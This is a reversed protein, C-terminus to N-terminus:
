SVSCKIVKFCAPQVVQGGLRARGLFLVQNLEAYNSDDFRKVSFDVRKAITYGRRFDGFIIPFAGSAIDPAQENVIIPDGLLTDPITIGRLGENREGMLYNGNGDKLKHLERLTNSNMVWKANGRYQAPLHYKTEIIVDANIFGGTSGTPLYGGVTQVGVSASGSVLTNTTVGELKGNGDGYYIFQDYDIGVAESFAENIEAEIDFSVDELSNMSVPNSVMCVHIPIAIQSLTDEAATHDGAAPTEGVWRTRAVHARRADTTVLNPQVLLDSSTTRARCEGAMVTAAAINKNLEGIWEEPVGYGFSADSGSTITKISWGDMSREAKVSAGEMFRQKSNLVYRQSETLRSEGHRAYAEFVSKYAGKVDAEDKIALAKFARQGPAEMEELAKIKKDQSALRKQYKMELAKLAANVRPNASKRASRQQIPNLSFNGSDEDYFLTVGKQKAKKRRSRSSIPADEFEDAAMTAVDEEDLGMYSDFEDDAMTAEFEDDAKRRRSRSSIPANDFEDDAMTASDEDDGFAMGAFDEDDGFAMMSSDLEDDAMMAPDADIEAAVAGLEEDDLKLGLTKAVARAAAIARKSAMKVGRSYHDDNIREDLGRWFQEDTFLAKLARVTTKSPQAPTPTVSGEILPWVKIEGSKAIKVLHDVSGSSWGFEKAQVMKYVADGYEDRLNLQAQVWLGINDAKAMKITGIAKLGTSDDMGHHYLVPREAFWDLCFDTDPTFWEGQLDTDQPNGWSALYGEIMGPQGTVAKVTGGQHHTITNTM